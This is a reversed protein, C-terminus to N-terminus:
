QASPRSRGRLLQKHPAAVLLSLLQPKPLFAEPVSHHGLSLDHPRRHAQFIVNAANLLMNRFRSTKHLPLPADYDPQPRRTLACQIRLPYKPQQFRVKPSKLFVAESRVHFPATLHYGASVSRAVNRRYSSEEM